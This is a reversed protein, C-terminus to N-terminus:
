GKDIKALHLHIDPLNGEFEHKDKWRDPRRNKLWFCIAGTDPKVDRVIEKTVVLKGEKLEKITETYTYGKAAKLLACEVHETDFADKGEQIAAGFDPHKDKWYHITRISVAFLEALFADTFGGRGCAVRAMDVYKDQWTGKAGM